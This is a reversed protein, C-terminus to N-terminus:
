WINFEMVNPANNNICNVMKKIERQGTPIMGKKVMTQVRFAGAIMVAEDDSFLHFCCM